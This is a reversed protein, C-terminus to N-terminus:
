YFLFSTSCIKLAVSVVSNRLGEPDDMRCAWFGILELDGLYYNLCVSM